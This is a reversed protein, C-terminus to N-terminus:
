KESDVHVRQPLIHLRSSFSSFWELRVEHMGESFKEKNVAAIIGSLAVCVTCVAVVFFFQSKM